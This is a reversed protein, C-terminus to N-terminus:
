EEKKISSDLSYWLSWGSIISGDDLKVIPIFGGERFKNPKYNIVTGSKGILNSNVKGIDDVITVRTGIPIKNNM